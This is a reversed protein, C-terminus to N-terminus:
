CSEVVLLKLATLDGRAIEEVAPLDVRFGAGREKVTAETNDNM